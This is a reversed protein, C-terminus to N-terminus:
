YGKLINLLKEASRNWDLSQILQVQNVRIKNYLDPNDVLECINKVMEDIDGPMSIMMNEKNKGLDLVFGSKTGVVVCGCAMAEIPSLGWGEEISPYIYIDSKNYLQVLENKSPNRKYEIYSPLDNGSDLGFMRCNVHQFKRRIIDMVAVGNNVGKKPLRHNLMLLNIEKKLDTNNIRNEKFLGNNIGNYVIPYPGMNLSKRIQDNIWTSIVIKKLNLKYSMLGYTKNDWTEFDQIFYFKKGKAADLSDVKYATTWATAIIVDFKPVSRNNIKLVYKDFKKNRNKWESISKLTCYIKHIYNYIRLNYRHMNPAIFEKLVIVENGKRSLIDAYKYIVDIGGSKGISPIVFCIKM